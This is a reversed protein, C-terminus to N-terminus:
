DNRDSRNKYWESLGEEDKDVDSRSFDLAEFITMGEEEILYTLLRNLKVIKIKQKETVNM